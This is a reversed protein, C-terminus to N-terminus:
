IFYQIYQDINDINAQSWVMIISELIQLIARNLKIRSSIISQICQNNITKDHNLLRKTFDGTHRKANLGRNYHIKQGQSPQSVNRWIAQLSGATGQKKMHGQTILMTSHAQIRLSVRMQLRKRYLLLLRDTPAWRAHLEPMCFLTDRSVWLGSHIQTAWFSLQLAVNM